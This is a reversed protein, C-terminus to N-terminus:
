GSNHVNRSGSRGRGVGVPGSRGRGAGDSVAGPNVAAQFRGLGALMEMILYKNEMVPHKIEMLHYINEM